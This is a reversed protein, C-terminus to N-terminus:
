SLPIAELHAGNLSAGGLHANGLFAHALHARDLKAGELHTFGLYARELHAEVLYAQQLDARYLNAGEMYAYRLDAQKLHARGLNTQALRADRLDAGELHAGYLIAGELHAGRLDAQNIYADRFDAWELHAGRFDVGELHAGRLDAKRLDVGPLLLSETMGPSQVCRGLVTIAAQVDPVRIRLQPLQDTSDRTDHPPKTDDNASATWAAHGRVYATLIEAITSRDAKSNTAIRELAYIGGLRVDIEDDGRRGLHHIANNFRETIQAERSIQLQRWTGGAGIALLLGGVGQLLTTRVDNEASVYEASSLAPASFGDASRQILYEPVVLICLLALAVVVLTFGAVLWSSRLGHRARALLIRGRRGLVIALGLIVLGPWALRLISAGVTASARMPAMVGRGVRSWGAVHLATVLVAVVVYWRAALSRSLQALRSRM